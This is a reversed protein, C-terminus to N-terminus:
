EPEHPVERRYPCNARCAACGSIPTVGGVDATKKRWGIVASISKRPVLINEPTVKVGIEEGGAARVLEAQVALDWDGYGPSLRPSLSLGERAAEEDLLRNLEEAAEEAADSGIADLISARALEGQQFYAAVADELETGITVVLTTLSQIEGLARVIKPGTVTVDSGVVRVLGDGQCKVPYTRWAGRPHLLAMAHAIEEDLLRAVEPPLETKGRRYGLYRLVEDRNIKPPFDSRYTEM